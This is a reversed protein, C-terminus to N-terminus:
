PQIVGPHLVLITTGPATAPLGRFHLPPIPPVPGGAFAIAEGQIETTAALSATPDVLSGHDGTVFNVYGALGNATVVAGALAPAAIRVLAAAEILRQTASN